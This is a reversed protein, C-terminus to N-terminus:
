VATRFPVEQAVTRHVSFKIHEFLLYYIIKYMFMRKCLECVRIYPVMIDYRTRTGYGDPSSWKSSSVYWVGYILWLLWM